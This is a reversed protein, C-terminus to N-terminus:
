QFLCMKLLIVTLHEAKDVNSFAPLTHDVLVGVHTLTHDVLVGVHTLTHDVLVGVHTLAAVVTM